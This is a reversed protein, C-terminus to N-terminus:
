YPMISSRRALLTVDALIRETPLWDWFRLNNSETAGSTFVVDSAEACVVEAVQERPGPKGCASGGSWVSTYRSGANGYEVKLYHVMAEIVRPDPPTTANCDLYIPREM